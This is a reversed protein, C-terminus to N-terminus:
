SRDGTQKLVDTDVALPSGSREVQKEVAAVVQQPHIDTMCRHGFDCKSWLWCPACSLSTFLNENCSYGSQWPAERGGYVIASRCDVSRALHMLFGVLGVFVLSQSMVAATQRVTSKGRLDIVGKLQPDSEMGVQVFTYAYGLADVVAQFREVFWEKNRIPMSASLITSQIAIQRPALRGLSREQPTLYFYPRLAIEGAIGAKEAMCTIIHRQPPVSRDEAEIIEAYNPMCSRGGIRQALEPYRYDMPVVADVDPNREFLEPHDSMMWLGRRGRRRLERFLTTCLLHDGYGYGYVLLTSPRSGARLMQRQEWIWRRLPQTAKGIAQRAPHRMNAPPEAPRPAPPLPIRYPVVPRPAEDARPSALEEPPCSTGPPTM